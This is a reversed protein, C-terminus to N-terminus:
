FRMGVVIPVVGGPPVGMYRMEVFITSKRPRVEFGVGGQFGAHNPRFAGIEDANGSLYAAAGAVVYPSWRTAPDNLRAVMSFSGSVLHSHTGQDTCGQEICVYDYEGILHYMLDARLALRRSPLPFQVEAGLVIGPKFTSKFAGTVNEGGAMIGWTVPQEAAADQAGASLSTLSTATVVACAVLLTKM